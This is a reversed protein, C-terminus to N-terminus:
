QNVDIRTQEKRVGISNQNPERRESESEDEDVPVEGNSLKRDKNMASEADPYEAAGAGFLQSVSNTLSTFWGV